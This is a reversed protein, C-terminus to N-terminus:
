IAKAKNSDFPCNYIVEFLELVINFLEFWRGAINSFEYGLHSGRPSDMERFNPDLVDHICFTYFLEKTESSTIYNTWIKKLLLLWCIEADEGNLEFLEPKLIETKLLNKIINKSHKHKM